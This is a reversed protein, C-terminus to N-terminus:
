GDVARGLGFLGSLLEARDGGEPLTRVLDRARRVFDPMKRYEPESVVEGDQVALAYEVGVHESIGV